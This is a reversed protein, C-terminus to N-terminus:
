ASRDLVFNRAWVIVDPAAGSRAAAEISDLSIEWCILALGHYTCTGCRRYGVQDDMRCAHGKPCVGQDPDLLSLTALDAPSLGM